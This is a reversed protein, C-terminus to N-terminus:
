YGLACGDKRPDSGGTLTGKEWDIWIAQGGGHPEAKRVIKHGLKALGQALTEPVSTELEYIDEYHLARPMDIAAQVDLGYDLVNTAVHVQGTPQYQGGMVGFPMVAREGKTLMSPIITHLPRKGGAINNPHGPEVRFGSGRNQLLVGSRPAWVASGFGYAISNIFSCANRDKDVVCCYITSPRSPPKVIPLDCMRDLSIKARLEAAFAPSLFKEVDVPVHRPDAITQERALYALRSAEAELHFREVSMPGYKSLDLGSLINMMLLMTAGPGNPPCQWVDYGRYNTHIAGPRETTHKAFDDLTHLGGLSRLTEVMDEAVAGRYFAEPGKAAIARLTAALEPQKIVDGTKPAQGGPLLRPITNAGKKLKDLNREWDWAVRPGVIYGDAAAHIAPQMAADLGKRGHDNLLCAWAHVAGPVTVSHPGTLPIATMKRELYWDSNAAAPACGSGNYAVVKSGGRPAYLAFCDGGIGTSQPEIVSLLASATVAADAATGGQRLVDIAALSALPHSTAAMGNLSHVTSRGPFHFDRM